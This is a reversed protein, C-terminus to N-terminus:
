DSQKKVQEFYAGYAAAVEPSDILVATENNTTLAAHTWNTSGVITYRGDVVCIKCHTTREKSDSFVKVGSKELYEMASRNNQGAKGLVEDKGGGELIVEVDVGRKQAQTLAALLRNSPSEPYTSYRRALFMIVRISQTARNLCDMVAPVYEQNNIPLVDRAPIGGAPVTLFFLGSLFCLVLAVFGCARRHEVHSASM